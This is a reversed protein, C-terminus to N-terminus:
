FYIIIYTNKEGNSEFFSSIQIYIYKQGNKLFIDHNEQLITNLEQDSLKEYISTNKFDEITLNKNKKLKIDNFGINIYDDKCLDSLYKQVPVEIEMKRDDREIEIVFKKDKPM